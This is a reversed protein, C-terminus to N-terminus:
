ESVWWVNLCCGLYLEAPVFRPQDHGTSSNFQQPSLRTGAEGRPKAYWPASVVPLSVSLSLPSTAHRSTPSVAFVRSVFLFGYDNHLKVDVSLFWLASWTVSPPPPPPFQPSLSLTLPEVTGASRGPLGLLGHVVALISSCCSSRAM